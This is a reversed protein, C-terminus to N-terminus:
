KEHIIDKNEEHYKKKKERIINKNEERYKKKKEHIINKNEERYKKMQECIENKNEEYYKQRYERMTRTPISKNVCTFNEIYYRERKELEMKNECPFSEVPIIQVKGLDFLKFSSYQVGKGDQNSKWASKHCSLRKALSMCTSGYYVDATENSVLKYIKGNQYRNM